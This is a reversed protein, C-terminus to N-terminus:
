RPEGESAGTPPAVVAPDAERAPEAPAPTPGPAPATGPAARGAHGRAALRHWLLLLAGSAVVWALLAWAWVPM